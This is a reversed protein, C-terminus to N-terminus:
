RAKDSVPFASPLSEPEGAANTSEIVSADPDAGSTTAPAAAPASAGAGEANGGADPAQPAHAGVGAPVAPLATAKAAGDPAEAKEDFLNLFRSGVMARMTSEPLTERGTYDDIYIDLGDMVNFHPDSFLKKMAANRVEPTVGRGVFKSFDSDATLARVDELTPLMSQRAADDQRGAAAQGTPQDHTDPSATDAATSVDSPGAHEEAEIPPHQPGDTRALPAASPAEPVPPNPAQRAAQRAQAKRRSWRGLFGRTESDSM